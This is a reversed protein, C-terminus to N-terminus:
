GTFSANGDQAVIASVPQAAALLAELMRRARHLRSMVTGLACDMVQAIEAYSLEDVYALLLIMRASEPLQALAQELEEGMLGALVEDEASAGTPMWQTSEARPEDDFPITPPTQGNHRLQSSFTHRLITLLWARCHRGDFRDFARYARLYTEQVLDEAHERNNALRLAARYLTDLHVLAEQEFRLQRQQEQTARERVRRWLLNLGRPNAM